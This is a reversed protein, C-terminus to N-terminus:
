NIAESTKISSIFPKMPTVNLQIVCVLSVFVFRIHLRFGERHSLSRVVAEAKPGLSLLLFPKRKLCRLRKM